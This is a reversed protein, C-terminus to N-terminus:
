RQLNSTLNLFTECIPGVFYTMNIPLTQWFLHWFINSSIPGPNIEVDDCRILLLAVILILHALLVRLAYPLFTFCITSKVHKYRNFLGIRAKYLAIDVTM